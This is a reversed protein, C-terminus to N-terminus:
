DFIGGLGGSAGNRLKRYELGRLQKVDQCDLLEADILGIILNRAYRDGMALEQLKEMRTEPDPLDMVEQVAKKYADRKHKRPRNFSFSHNSHCFECGARECGKTTAFFVCPKCLGADHIIEKLAMLTQGGDGCCWSAARRVM